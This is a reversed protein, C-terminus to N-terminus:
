VHARGIERHRHCNIQKGTDKRKNGSCSNKVRCGYRREQAHHHPLHFRRADHDPLHPWRKVLVKNLSELWRIEFVQQLFYDAISHIVQVLVLLANLKAFFWFKDADLEQMSSYLGNYFFSNLVSFRVELLIMTFLVLLMLIIKISNRRNISPSAIHWFKQGFSTQKLAIMVVSFCLVVWFLATLIWSLSSNLETQWNM